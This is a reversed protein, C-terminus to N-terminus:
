SNDRMELIYFLSGISSFFLITFYVIITATLSIHYDVNYLKLLYIFIAQQPGLGGISLPFLSIIQSSSYILIVLLFSINLGLSKLIVFFYFSSLLVFILSILEPFLSHKKVDKIISFLQIRQSFLNLILSKMLFLIIIFINLLIIHYDLDFLFFVLYNLSFVLLILFGYFRDFFIAYIINKYGYKRLKLIKYGDGGFSTPLFNSFFNSQFYLFFLHWRNILINKIRLFYELKLTSIFLNILYILLLLPFIFLNIKMLNNIVDFINIRRFILYFLFTIIFLKFTLFIIKKHRM